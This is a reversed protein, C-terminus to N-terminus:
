SFPMAVRELLGAQLIGHISSVPLSDYPRLTASNAVISTKLIVPAKLVRSFLTAHDGQGFEVLTGAQVWTLHSGTEPRPM